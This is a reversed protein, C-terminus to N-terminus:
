RDARRLTENLVAGCEGGLKFEFLDDGRTRGRNVAVVPTGHAAATRVLRFSSWVMLSSGVVLVGDAAEVAALAAMGTERPVSEGYFVVDPKLMGGCVECVPVEFAGFDVGEIDADGDPAIRASAADWDPNAARLRSQFAERDFRHGNALCRVVDLRGHLDIVNTSGAREHLRDVNQTVIGGIRGSQEMRALAVHATSPRAATFMPWGAFSRAWYRRRVADSEVFDRYQVPASRKWNGDGDRYDPIGSETSVGAGTIATVHSRGALWAGLREIDVASASIGGRRSTDNVDRM